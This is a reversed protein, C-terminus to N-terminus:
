GAGAEFTLAEGAPLPAFAEAVHAADAEALTAPSWRPANDKDILLARVGEYFDPHSMCYRALRYELAMCGAFDLRAGERIQRFAIRTSTPSKALIAARQERAWDSGDAELAALIAEVSDGAFLRDIAPRLAALRGGEPERAFANLAWDVATMADEDTAGYDAEALADIAQGHRHAPIDLDCLGATVADAPGLRAGTLALWMGTEGPLRPLFWTGGVDPFLGIGTEPMAFVTADGAVRRFGHISVGVGGGMTVGDIFAVYPKPYRKILANMRYEDAYFGFTARGDVRGDVLGAEYLARIDGGACFAREGAGTIAVARIAPDEAWTKLRAELALAMAHTLANMAKPRNLTVLGLPGREEFLIDDTM